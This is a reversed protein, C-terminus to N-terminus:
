GSTLKQRFNIKKRLQPNLRKLPIHPWRTFNLIFFTFMEEVPKEACITKSDM